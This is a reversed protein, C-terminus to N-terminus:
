RRSAHCVLRSSRTGNVQEAVTERARLLCQCKKTVESGIRMTANKALRNIVSLRANEEVLLVPLEYTLWVVGKVQCILMM